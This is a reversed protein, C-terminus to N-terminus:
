AHRGASVAEGNSSEILKRSDAKAKDRITKVDAVVQDYLRRYETEAQDFVLDGKKKAAAEDSFGISTAASLSATSAHTAERLVVLILHLLASNEHFMRSELAAIRESLEQTLRDDLISMQEKITKTIDQDSDSGEVVIAALANRIWESKNLGVASARAEIQEALDLPVRTWVRETVPETDSM